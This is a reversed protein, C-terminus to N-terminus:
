EYRLAEIPDMRAAKMAPWLGALIGVTALVTFSILMVSLSARLIIDGEHNATKYLESYLPMPPIAYTLAVALLMGVLGGAFTLVLAESLFQLLLHRKRAGIAKRLGIERTRETVSVLMINMVGVGGVGLTLAGILGLLVDLGIIFNKVDEQNEVTDWIQVAKEDKPDFHHREAMVKRVGEIARKNLWAESPQFLIQDPDRQNSLSQMVTFPIFACNNDQCNNSSDQIKRKLLGIVEFQRGQISVTLGVPPRGQFVKKAADPGFIVVNRHELVDAEEFFRGEEVDLRRMGGYPYEIGKTTISIVRDGFKYGLTNDTEASVAKLFPASDRLAQIDEFELHIRKGAREGGAHMSTQGGWMFAVDNGIGMTAVFVSTGIGEGYALLIVVSALGWVIGLMTLLSRTRNRMLSAWSQSLVTNM